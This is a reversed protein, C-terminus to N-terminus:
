SFWKFLRVSDNKFTRIVYDIYQGSTYPTSHDTYSFFVTKSMIFFLDCLFADFFLGQIFGQPVGFLMEEWSSYKTNMKTKQENNTLYSHVLRLVNLCFGYAQLKAIWLELLLCDFAKSLDTLLAGFSSWIRGKDVSTM